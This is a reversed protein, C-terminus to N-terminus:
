YCMLALIPWACACSHYYLKFYGDGSYCSAWQFYRSDNCLWGGHHFMFYRRATVSQYALHLLQHCRVALVPSLLCGLVALVGAQAWLLRIPAIILQTSAVGFGYPLPISLWIQSLHLEHAITPLAPLYMDMSLFVIVFFALGLAFLENCSKTQM